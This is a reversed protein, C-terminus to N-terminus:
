CGSEIFGALEELRGDFSLFLAFWSEVLYSSNVNVSTWM